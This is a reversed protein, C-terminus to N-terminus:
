YVGFPNPSFCLMFVLLAIWGLIKRGTSLPENILTVPHYIGLIRGLILAFVLWWYYGQVNFYSSILFQAAFVAVAVMLNTQFSRTLKSFLVYLFGIYLPIEWNLTDFSDALTVTGLGSYFVFAIFLGASVKQHWKAGILGYLIHGGDLQGIPILNLATFFLALYGAFIWPYHIIEYANPVWDDESAVYESFFTMLLNGGLAITAGSPGFRMTDPWYTPASGFQQEYEETVFFTDKQYVVDEFDDGFYQYEPHVEYIHEKPPLHTFGYYLVGLAAVFGALPGAIGIDFFQKRSNIFDKIRIVAGMTGISPLGPLGLWGLFGFWLPIYYPLTVKVKHWKATFYHGFEHITLVGLFPISFAFGRVFWKWTIPHAEWGVFRMFQWETGALTTTTLTVIFLLLHVGWRLYRDRM